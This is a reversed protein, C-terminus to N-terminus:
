IPDGIYRDVQKKAGQINKETDRVIIMVAGPPLLLLLFFIWTCGYPPWDPPTLGGQKSSAM